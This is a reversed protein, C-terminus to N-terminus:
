IEKKEQAQNSKSPAEDSNKFLGKKVFFLNELVVSIFLQNSLYFSVLGLIGM